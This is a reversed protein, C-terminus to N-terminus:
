GNRSGTSIRKATPQEDEFQFIQTQVRRRKATEIAQNRIFFGDQNVKGVELTDQYFGNKKWFRNVGPDKKMDRSTFATWKLVSPYRVLVSQVLRSGFGCQRHDPHAWLVEVHATSPDGPTASLSDKKQITPIPSHGVLEFWMVAVFTNLVGQTAKLAWIHVRGRSVDDSWKRGDDAQKPMLKSLRAAMHPRDIKMREYIEESAGLSIPDATLQVARTDSDRTM